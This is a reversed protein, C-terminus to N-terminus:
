SDEGRAAKREEALWDLALALKALASALRYLFAAIM